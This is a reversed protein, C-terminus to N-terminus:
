WVTATPKSAWVPFREVVLKSSLGPSVTVMPKSALSLSVTGITKIGFWQYIM